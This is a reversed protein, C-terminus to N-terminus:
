WSNAVFQVAQLLNVKSSVEKVTSFSTLLNEEIADLIHNVMNRCYLMKVNKVSGMDIAQVLSTTNVPLFELQINKL